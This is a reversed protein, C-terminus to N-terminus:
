TKYFNSILAAIKTIDHENYRSDVPISILRNFLDNEVGSVKPWHIPLYISKEFLYKRLEDRKDVSLVYFSPYQTNINIAKSRLYKKLVCINEKRNSYEKENTSLFDFIRFLSYSYISNISNQADLTSEALRFLDLYEEESHKHNHIYNYKINKAKYKIPAFESEEKFFLEDSLEITSKILSGDAVPSIKRFSNFGIWKDINKPKEFIPLFVNDEVLTTDSPIVGYIDNNRGFYNIIYLVDYDKKKIRSIDISLDGNIAYFSYDISHENFVKLVIECLYNPILFKKTKLGHLLLRLSSRGSDTLYEYLNTQSMEIEGGILKM